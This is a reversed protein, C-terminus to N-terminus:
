DTLIDVGTIRTTLFEALIAYPPWFTTLMLSFAVEANGWFQLGSTRLVSKSGQLFIKLLM